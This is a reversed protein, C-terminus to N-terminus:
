NIKNKQCWQEVEPKIKLGNSIEKIDSKIENLDSKIVTLSVQTGAAIKELEIIRYDINNVREYTQYSESDQQKELNDVRQSISGAAMGVPILIALISLIILIIKITKEM